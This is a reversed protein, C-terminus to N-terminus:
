GRKLFSGCGGGGKELLKRSLVKERKRDSGSSRTRIKKSCKM